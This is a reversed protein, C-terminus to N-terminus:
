TYVLLVLHTRHLKSVLEYSHKKTWSQWFDISLWRNLQFLSSITTTAFEQRRYTTNNIKYCQIVIKTCLCTFLHM